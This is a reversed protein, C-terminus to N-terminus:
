QTSKPFVSAMNLRKIKYVVSFFCEYFFTENFHVFSDEHGVLYDDASCDCIHHEREREGDM